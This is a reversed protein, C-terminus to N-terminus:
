WTGSFYLCHVMLKCWSGGAEGYQQYGKHLKSCTAANPLM